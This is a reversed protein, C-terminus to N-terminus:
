RDTLLLTVMREPRYHRPIGTTRYARILSMDSWARARIVYGCRRVVDELDDLHFMWCPVVSERLNLQATVYTPNSGAPIVSIVVYPAGYGLLRRLGDFPEELYQLAGCAHVIDFDGRPLDSPSTIPVFRISPDDPFLTRGIEAVRPLEAVTYDITADSGLSRRLAVYAIGMAGGFDLIRVRASGRLFAGAITVLSLADDMGAPHEIADVTRAITGRIWFDREHGGRAPVDAYRAYVGSWTARPIARAIRGRARVALHRVARLIM